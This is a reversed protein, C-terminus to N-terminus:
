RAGVLLDSRFFGLIKMFERGDVMTADVVVPPVGRRLFLVKWKKSGPRGVVEITTYRSTLDFVMRGGQRVIELQGQRVSLRTVSAGARIGWIVLTVLIAIAAVGIDVSDRTLYALYGFYGSGALAGILMLSLFRRSSKLPAFEYVAPMEMPTSAPAQVVAAAAPQPVPEVAPPASRGLARKPAVPASARAAAILGRAADGTGTPTDRVRRGRTELRRKRAVHRRKPAAKTPAEEPPAM